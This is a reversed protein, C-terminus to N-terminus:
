SKTGVSQGQQQLEPRPHPGDTELRFDETGL